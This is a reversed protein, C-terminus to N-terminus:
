HTTASPWANKVLREELRREGFVTIEPTESRIKGSFNSFRLALAQLIRLNLRLQRCFQDKPLPQLCDHQQSAVHFRPSNCHEQSRCGDESKIECVNRRSGEQAGNPQVVNAFHQHQNKGTRKENDGSQQKFCLTTM